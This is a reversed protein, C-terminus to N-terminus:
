CINENDRYSRRRFSGHSNLWTIAYDEVWEEKCLGRNRDYKYVKGAHELILIDEDGEKVWKWDKINGKKKDWDIDEPLELGDVIENAIATRYYGHAFVPELGSSILNALVATNGTPQISTCHSNRMGDQKIMMLTRKSLQKIFEGSLYMSEDYLIFSGKEKSLYTSAQYAKNTFFEMLDETLKLAQKSGYKVRAMMLSSAYGIVGLGIRRKNELNEKQIELPTYTVDNVNDMMRVALNLVQELEEYKWDQKEPDIFQTLNISGLLCVGGIPLPEEGCPNTSSIHECYHLNNMRNITDVFLVGPENRNYTSEMILDWLERASDFHHYIIVADEWVTEKWADLNGNWYKKYTRKHAKINPYVLDWPEDNIVARMFDDTCLVSMNFKTLRGPTQKATIFEVIDPHWCSMATLQAGKRISQKEEKNNQKGSGATIIESSKDWLELFKVAGPTQNGIGAIHTGRPRMVDCCFGYGGESKLIQAQELVAKYIGEISDQDQDTFGHVYCNHTLINGELVFSHKDPVIACYVEEFLDTEEVSVVHWYHYRFKNSQIYRKRHKDRIFFNEHLTKTDLTLFYIESEQNNLNSTRTQSREKFYKIGLISCVNKVFKVDSIKSSTIVSTGREDICGDAAFYGALWGLLFASNEDLSPLRKWSNPLLSFRTQNDYNCRTQSPFYKELDTIKDGCLSASSKSGDGYTFGQAVGVPSLKWASKRRSSVQKLRHYPELELTTLVKYSEKAKTNVFWQHNATCFLVKEDRNKRLTLKYLRDYGFNRIPAKVWEGNDSLLFVKTGVLDRIPKIGESTIVETDGRFCNLMTTGKLHTGANSLIRGGPIFQFGSLVGYFEETYRERDEEKEVSALNKAVRWWTDQITDDTKWKYKTRWVEESFDNTFVPM